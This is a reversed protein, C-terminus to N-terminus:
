QLPHICYCLNVMGPANILRLISSHSTISKCIEQICYKITNPSSIYPYAKEKIFNHSSEQQNKCCDKKRLFVLSAQISMYCIM